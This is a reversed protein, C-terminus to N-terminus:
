RWRQAYALRTGAALYSYNTSDIPVILATKPTDNFIVLDARKLGSRMVNKRIRAEKGEWFM